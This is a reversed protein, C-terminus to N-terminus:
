REVSGVLVDIVESPIEAIKHHSLIVTEVGSEAKAAPTTVNRGSATRPVGQQTLPGNPEDNSGTSGNSTNRTHTSQQQVRVAANASHSRTMPSSLSSLMTTSVPLGNMPPAQTADAIAHRGNRMNMVTKILEASSVPPQPYAATPVALQSGYVSSRSGAENPQAPVTPAPQQQQQPAGFSQQPQMQQRAFLSGPGVYRASSANPTPIPGATQSRSIAPRAVNVRLHGGARAEAPNFGPALGGAPSLPQSSLALPPANTNATNSTSIPGVPALGPSLLFDFSSDVDNDGRDPSSSMSLTDNNGNIYSQNVGSNGVRYGGVANGFSDFEDSAQAKRHERLQHRSSASNGSGQSQSLQSPGPNARQVRSASNASSVAPRVLPAILYQDLEGSSNYGGRQHQKAYSPAPPQFHQSPLSQQQTQSTYGPRDDHMSSSGYASDYPLDYERAAYSM